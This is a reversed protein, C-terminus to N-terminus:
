RSMWCRVVSTMIAQSILPVKPNGVDIDKVVVKIGADIAKQIVDKVAEPRGHSVIIGQMGLAIAKDFPAPAGKIGDALAVRAVSTTILLGILGAKLHRM